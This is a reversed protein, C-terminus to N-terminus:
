KKVANDANTRKAFLGRSADEGPLPSTFARYLVFGVFLLVAIVAPIHFLASDM